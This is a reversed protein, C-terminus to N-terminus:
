SLSSTSPVRSPIPMLPRPRAHMAYTHVRADAHFARARAHVTNSFNKVAARIDDDTIELPLYPQEGMPDAGEKTVWGYQRLAQVTPRDEPRKALMARLMASLPASLTPPLVPAEEKIKRWIEPM